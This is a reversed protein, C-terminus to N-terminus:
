ESTRGIMVEVRRNKARGEPTANSAIPVDSGKGEVDIRSPNTMGEKLLAAVAKAREVSLHWNSPFRVTKIPTNDTHGIVRIRGKETDLIAAIKAALPKFQDKVTAQGPDFTVQDCLRIVIQTPTQDIVNCEGNQLEERLRAIQSTPPPPPPPPPPPVYVRRKLALQDNSHLTATAAAAAEANGSLLIRLTVFLGFLLASSIAAVAWVPVRSRTVNLGLAQGRWRPSLDKAVKPRVRHLTEYLDRQIQHLTTLGGNQTRYVGQFGLALCAHQLELLPYNIVPDLKAQNLVEFFRIGGTREGFFRSLMSYQAWVHRDETPIHQVIDDATACLVYKANTAQQESIGASRIDKEFFKIAEAVQETLGAFSARLLAVRLRGLLQLLPGAARMIPSPNPAVLDDVRLTPGQGEVAAAPPPAASKIWQEGTHTAPAPAYASQAAPPTPPTPAHRAPAADAGSSPPPAVSPSSPKQPPPTPNGAPLRGGPNPRIITREGRGFPNGPRDQDSM